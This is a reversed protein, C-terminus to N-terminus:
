PLQKKLINDFKEKKRKLFIEPNDTYFLNYIKKSSLQSYDINYLNKNKAKRVNVKPVGHKYLEEVVQLMM